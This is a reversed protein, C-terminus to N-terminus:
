KLKLTIFNAQGSDNAEYKVYIRGGIVVSTLLTAGDTKELTDVVTMGEFLPPINIAVKGTIQSHAYILWYDGEKVWYVQQEPNTNPDFWAFYTVFDKVFDTNVVGNNWGDGNGLAKFAHFYCKNRAGSVNWVLVCSRPYQASSGEVTQTNRIAPVTMGKDLSMGGAVGLLYDESGELVTVVRDTMDNVDYLNTTNRYIVVSTTDTANSNIGGDRKSKPFYTKSNYEGVAFPQQPQISFYKSIAIPSECNISVNVTCSLGNFNYSRVMVFVNSDQQPFPITDMFWDSPTTISWPAKCEITQCISFKDCYLTLSEADELSIEVGDVIYKTSKIVQVPLDYRASSGTSVSGIIHRSENNLKTLTTPKFDAVDSAWMNLSPSQQGDVGTIKPILYVTNGDIKGIYYARNNHELDVWESNIDADTLGGEAVSFLPIRWGHNAYMYGFNTNFPPTSDSFSNIENSKITTDSSNSQGVYVKNFTIISANSRYLTVIADKTESLASRVEINQSNDIKVKMLKLVASSSAKIEAIDNTNIEVQNKLSGIDIISNTYSKLIYKSTQSSQVNVYINSTGEVLLIPENSWTKGPAAESKHIQRSLVRGESNVLYVCYFNYGAGIYCDIKYEKTSDVNYKWLEMNNNSSYSSENVIDGVNLNIFKNDVISTPQEEAGEEYTLAEEIQEISDNVDSLQEDTYNKANQEAEDIKELVTDGEKVFICYFSDVISTSPTNNNFKITTRFIDANPYNELDITYEKTTKESQASFRVAYDKSFSGDVEHGIAAGPYTSTGTSAWGLFRIKKTGEPIQIEFYIGYIVPQISGNTGHVYYGSNYYNSPNQVVIVDNNFGTLSYKLPVIDIAKVISNVDPNELHTDDVDDETLVNSPMASQLDGAYVFEYGNSGDDQTAIMFTKTPITTDNTNNMLLIINPTTDTGATLGDITSSYITGIGGTTFASEASQDYNVFKFAGINAKLSALWQEESGVYGNDVAVQYASKGARFTLNLTQNPTDGTINAAAQEGDTVTGISLTNAPGPAGPQGDQGDEGPEGQPGQPATYITEGIKIKGLTETAEGTPNAEVETGGDDVIAKLVANLSEGTIDGDENEYVNQDIYQKLEEKTM